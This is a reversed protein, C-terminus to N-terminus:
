WDLNASRCTGCLSESGSIKSNCRHCFGKIRTIHFALAKAERLDLGLNEHAYRAAELTSRRSSVAFAATEASTLSSPWVVCTRCKPCEIHPRGKPEILRVQGKSQRSM